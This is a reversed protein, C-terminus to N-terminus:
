TASVRNVIWYYLSPCARKVVLLFREQLGIFVERRNKEIARIIIRACKEVPV